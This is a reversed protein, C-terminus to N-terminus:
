RSITQLPFAQLFNDFTVWFQEKEAFCCVQLAYTSVIAYMKEPIALTVSILWDIVRAVELIKGYLPEDSIIGVGNSTSSTGYYLLNYGAGIERREIEGRLHLYDASQM